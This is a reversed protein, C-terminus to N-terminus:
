KITFAVPDFGAKKKWLQLGNGGDYWGAYMLWKLGDFMALGGNLEKMVGLFLFPMVGNALHEGHGLITACIALQGYRRLQLYGVLRRRGNDRIFCGWWMSWHHRCGLDPELRYAERLEAASRLYGPRMPGGSRDPLSKNISEIEEALGSPKFLDCIAGTKEAKKAERM